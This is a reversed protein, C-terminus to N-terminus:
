GMRFVWQGASRRFGASALLCATRSGRVDACRLEGAGNRRADDIARELLARGLGLGRMSRVVWIDQLTWANDFLAKGILKGDRSASIRVERPSREVTLEWEFSALRRRLRRMPAATYLREARRGLWRRPPGYMRVFATGVWPARAIVRGAAAPLGRDLRYGIGLMRFSVARGLLEPDSVPADDREGLDSRTIFRGAEDFAVVRHSRLSRGDFWVAIDGIGLESSNCYQIGLTGGPWIWPRMCAGATPM